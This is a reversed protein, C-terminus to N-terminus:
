KIVMIEKQDNMKNWNLGKSNSLCHTLLWGLEDNVKDEIHGKHAIYMQSITTYYDGEKWVVVILLKKHIPCKVIISMTNSWRDIFILCTVNLVEWM